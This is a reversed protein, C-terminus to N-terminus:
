IAAIQLALHHEGRVAQLTDIVARDDLLKTRGAAMALDDLAIIGLVTGGAGEVPVRRVRRQRM